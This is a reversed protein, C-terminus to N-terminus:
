GKVSSRKAAKKTSPTSQAGDSNELLTHLGKGGFIIDAEPAENLYEQSIGGWFTICETLIKRLFTMDRSTNLEELNKFYPVYEGADNKYELCLFM